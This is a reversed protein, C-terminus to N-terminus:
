TTRSADEDEIAHVYYTATKGEMVKEIVKAQELGDLTKALKQGSFNKFADVFQRRTFHEQRMVWNIVSLNSEKDKKEEEDVEVLRGDRVDLLFKETPANRHQVVLRRLSETGDGDTNLTFVSGCTRGWVESGKSITRREAGEKMAKASGKGSGTSILFGVGYHEAIRQLTTTFRGVDTGSNNDEVLLDGGDIFVLAYKRDQVVRKLSTEIAAGNVCEYPVQGVMNMREFTEDADYRGRDAFLFFFDLGGGDHGLFKQRDRGAVLSQTAFTSKMSGSSGSLLTLRGRPYWGSFKYTPLPALAYEWPNFVVADGAIISERQTDSDEWAPSGNKQWEVVAKDIETDGLRKWKDDSGKVWSARLESEEMEARMAEKNGAHKRALLQLVGFVAGSPNHDYDATDGALAKELKAAREAMPVYPKPLKIVTGNPKTPQAQPEATQAPRVKKDRIREWLKKIDRTQIVSRNEFINGTLAFMKTSDWIEVQDRNFNQEIKGWVLVHFGRGSASIETYSDLAKIEDLVWQPWPDDKTARVKDFDVVILGVEKGLAFGICGEGHQEAAKATEYNVWTDPDDCSASRGTIPNVPNKDLSGDSKTSLQFNLYRPLTKLWALDKVVQRGDAYASPSDNDVVATSPAAVEPAANNQAPTM